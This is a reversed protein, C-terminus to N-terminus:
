RPKTLKASEDNVETSSYVLDGPMNYKTPRKEAVFGGEDIQNPGVSYVSWENDGKLIYHMPTGDFPDIPVLSLFTPVLDDLTAPLHGTPRVGSTPCM